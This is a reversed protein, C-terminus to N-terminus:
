RLDGDVRLEKRIWCAVSRCYGSARGAGIPYLRLYREAFYPGNGAGYSDGPSQHVREMSVRTQSAAGLNMLYSEFPADLAILAALWVLVVTDRDLGSAEFAHASM